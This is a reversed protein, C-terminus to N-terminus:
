LPKEYTKFVAVVDPRKLFDQVDKREKKEQERDPKTDEIYKNM